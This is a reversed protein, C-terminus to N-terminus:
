IRYTTVVPVTKNEAVAAVAVVIFKRNTFEGALRQAEHLASGYSTHIKPKDSMSFKGTQKHMELVMFQNSHIQTKEMQTVGIIHNLYQM